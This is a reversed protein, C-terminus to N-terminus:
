SVRSAPQPQAPAPQRPETRSVRSAPDVRRLFRWAVLGTVVASAGGLALAARPDFTQAVWGILPGGIPASGMFSVSYLAMVRGRMQPDSNLQLTTNSLAAYTVSAVGTGALALLALPYSPAAAVMLMLVGFALAAVALRTGGLRGRSATALGGLVAGAGLMSSMLGFGEAGSHFTFRALLPLSVTFEYAFTGIVAMMLLPTRLSPTRWVYVLGERLQGRARRVPEGRLLESPRIALLAVIVAVYSAANLLFTPAIGVLAIVIGALAPGVVRAGNMIVSNLSIANTLSEKGVMELVFTQRLPLDLTNVCGFGLALAMVMWLQVVGTLTLVGLVLALGAMGCQTLVLFRRRNVRDAVVGAWPGLVLFPLTQAAFVAGVATGSGTLKLVLWAQGVSQMWTGSVSVIQGFFYLRYSRISLSRLASRAERALWTM